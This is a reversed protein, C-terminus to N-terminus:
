MESLKKLLAYNDKFGQEYGGSSTRKRLLDSSHHARSCRWRRTRASRRSSSSSIHRLHTAFRCIPPYGRLGCLPRACSRYRLSRLPGRPERWAGELRRESARANAEPINACQAFWRCAYGGASPQRRLLHGPLPAPIRLLRHRVQRRLRARAEEGRGGPQLALAPLPRVGGGGEPACGAYGGRRARRRRPPYPGNYNEAENFAKVTAAPNTGM